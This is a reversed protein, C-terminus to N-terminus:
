DDIGISRLYENFKKQNGLSGLIQPDFQIGVVINDVDSDKFINGAIRKYESETDNYINISKDLIGAATSLFEDRQSPLLREGTKAKNLLKDLKLM